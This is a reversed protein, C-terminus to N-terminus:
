QSRNKKKILPIKKEETRPPLLFLFRQQQVLYYFAETEGATKNPPRTIFAFLLYHPADGFECEWQRQKTGSRVNARGFPYVFGNVIWSYKAYHGINQNGDWFQKVRDLSHPNRNHWYIKSIWHISSISGFVATSTPCQFHEWRNLSLLRQGTHTHTHSGVARYKKLDGFFVRKILLLYFCKQKTKSIVHFWVTLHRRNM